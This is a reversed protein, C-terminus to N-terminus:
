LEVRRAPVCMAKEADGPNAVAFSVTAVMFHRAHERRRHPTKISLMGPRPIPRGPSM